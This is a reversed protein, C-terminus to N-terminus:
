KQISYIVQQQKVKKWKQMLSKYLQFQYQNNCYLIPFLNVEQINEFYSHEDIMLILKSGELSMLSCRKKQIQFHQHKPNQLIKQFPKYIRKSVISQNNQQEKKYVRILIDM